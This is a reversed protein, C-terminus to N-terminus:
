DGYVITTRRAYLGGLVIFIEQDAHQITKLSGNRAAAQIGADGWAIGWLLGQASARGVKDGLETRDLNQDLPLKTNVYCGGTAVLALALLLSRVGRTARSSHM